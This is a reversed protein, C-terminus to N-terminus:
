NLRNAFEFYNEVAQPTAILIWNEGVKLRKGFFKVECFKVKKLKSLSIAPCLSGAMLQNKLKLVWFRKGIGTLSQLQKVTMKM